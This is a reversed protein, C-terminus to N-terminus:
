DNTILNQLEKNYEEAWLKRKGMNRTKAENRCGIKGSDMAPFLMEWSSIAEHSIPKCVSIGIVTYLRMM